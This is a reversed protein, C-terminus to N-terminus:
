SSLEPPLFRVGGGWFFGLSVEEKGEAQITEPSTHLNVGNLKLTSCM